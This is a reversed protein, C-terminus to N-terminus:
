GSSAGPLSFRFVAGSGPRTPELWLRGGHAEVLRRAVALGLGVGRGTASSGRQFPEFLRDRLGPPVGDGDDAVEVVWGGEGNSEATVTVAPVAGDPSFSVANDFLRRLVEALHAEDAQVTPLVGARRVDLGGVEVAIAGVVAGLDVPGIRLAGSGARAFGLLAQVLGRMRELSAVAADLWAAGTEDLADAYDDRLMELYGYAVQLPQALDHGAVSAFGDLDTTSAARGKGPEAWAGTVGEVPGQPASDSRPEAGLLDVLAANLERPPMGKELVAAALGGTVDAAPDARSGSLVVVVTEPAVERIRPLVAWGSPGGPMEVDLLLLDPHLDAALAVADEGSAGEGVVRFPGGHELVLRLIQRLEALDDVLVVTRKM